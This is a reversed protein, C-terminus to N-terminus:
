VLTCFLHVYNYNYNSASPKKRKQPMIGRQPLKKKNTNQREPAIRQREEAKKQMKEVKKTKAQDREAAKFARKNVEPVM